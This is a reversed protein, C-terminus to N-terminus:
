KETNKPTEKIHLDLQPFPIFIGNNELKRKIRTALSNTASFYNERSVWFRMILNISSDAFQDFIISPEPEKEILEEEALTEKLINMVKEIDVEYPIGIPLDKRRISDPWFHVIERNWVMRNPILVRKGDWTKILTHNVHIVEVMGSTDGVQVADGEKLTRTFILLLGSAFNSLPEQFAIGFVIGSFGAGALLPGLNVNWIALVVFVAILYFLVRMIAKFTKPAGLERGMKKFAAIVSNVTLNLALWTIIFVVISLIIKVIM